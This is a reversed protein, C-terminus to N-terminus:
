SLAKQMEFVPRWPGQLASRHAHGRDERSGRAPLRTALGPVSVARGPPRWARTQGAARLLGSPWEKCVRTEQKWFVVSKLNGQRAGGDAIEEETWSRTRTWTKSPAEGWLRVRLHGAAVPSGPRRGGSVRVASGLAGGAPSRESEKGEAGAATPM